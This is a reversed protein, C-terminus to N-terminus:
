DEKIPKGCNICEGDGDTLNPYPNGCECVEGGSESLTCKIADHCDTSGVKHKCEDCKIKEKIAEEYDWHKVADWNRGNLGDVSRKLKFLKVLEELEQVKAKLENIEKGREEALEVLKDM